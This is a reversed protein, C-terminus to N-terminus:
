TMEDLRDPRTDWGMEDVRDKGESLFLAGSTVDHVAGLPVYYHKGLGLIGTKVEVIEDSPQTGVDASEPAVEATAYRYVHDVSGIKDGNIDCVDMGPEIRGLYREQM